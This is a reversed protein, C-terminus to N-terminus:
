AHSAPRGLARIRELCASAERELTRQAEPNHELFAEHLDYLACQVVSLARKLRMCAASVEALSRNPTGAVPKRKSAMKSIPKPFERRGRM